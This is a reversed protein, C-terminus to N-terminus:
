ESPAPFGSVTRSPVGTPHAALEGAVEAAALRHEDAADEHGLASALDARLSLVLVLERQATRARWKKLRRTLVDLIVEAEPLRDLEALVAAREREGGCVAVRLRADTASDFDGPLSEYKVLAAKFRREAALSRAELRLLRHHARPMRSLMSGLRTLADAVAARTRRHHGQRHLAGVRGILVAAYRGSSVIGSPGADVIRLFADAIRLDEAASRGGRSVAPWLADALNRRLAKKLGALSIRSARQAASAYHGRRVADRVSEIAAIVAHGDTSRRAADEVRRVLDEFFYLDPPADPARRPASERLRDAFFGLPDRTLPPADVKFVRLLEDLVRDASLTEGDEPVVFCANPHGTLWTPLSVLADRNYCFWYLQHRLGAKLRQKLANMLVDGEWGSYGLVLPARGRLLDGLLESMGTGARVGKARDSIEVDTNVLDYFWYTGHVHAIQVDTSDLDIRATTAPHDCVVHPQGFLHLSRSVFDDFNTTVLFRTLAGDSLLHALRLNADTLPRGEIKERFYLRRQDPDPYAQELWFSYGGAPDDPGDATTLGLSEARERCEKEIAWALPVSPVSIGAGCVFFYPSPARRTSAARRTERIRAAATPLSLLTM